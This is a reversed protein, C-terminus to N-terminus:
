SAFTAGIYAFLLAYAAGAMASITGSIVLAALKLRFTDYGLMLTRPENERIAILVRGIPGKVVLFIVLLAVALMGLALNYRQAADTLDVHLGLLDFSRAAQPMTLGEEGRTYDTFYTTTLYAVQAFMMTVIMFA